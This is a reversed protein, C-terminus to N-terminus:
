PINDLCDNGSWNPLTSSITTEHSVLFTLSFSRMKSKMKNDPNNEKFMIMAKRILIWSCILSSVFLCFQAFIFLLCKWICKLSICDTELCQSSLFIRPCSRPFLSLSLPRSCQRKNVCLTFLDLSLYDFLVLTLYYPFLNLAFSILHERRLFM